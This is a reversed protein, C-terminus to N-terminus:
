RSSCPNFFRQFDLGCRGTLNPMTEQEKLHWEFLNCIYSESWDSIKSARAAGSYRASDGAQVDVGGTKIEQL